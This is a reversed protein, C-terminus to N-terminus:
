PSTIDMCCRQFVIKTFAPLSEIANSDSTPTAIEISQIHVKTVM